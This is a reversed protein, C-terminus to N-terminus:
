ENDSNVTVTVATTGDGSGIDALRSTLEELAQGANKPSAGDPQEDHPPLKIKEM